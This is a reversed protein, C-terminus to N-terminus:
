KSAEIEVVHIIGAQGDPVGTVKVSKGEFQKAKDQDDLKWLTGSGDKLAYGDDGKLIVGTFSQSKQQPAQAGAQQASASSAQAGGSVACLGLGAALTLALLNKM